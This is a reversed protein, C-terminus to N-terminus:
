SSVPARKITIPNKDSASHAPIQAVTEENIEAVPPSRYGSSPVKPETGRPRLEHLRLMHM